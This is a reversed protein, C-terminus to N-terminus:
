KKNKYYNIERLLIAKGKRPNSFVGRDMPIV